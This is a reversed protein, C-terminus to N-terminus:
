GNQPVFIVCIRASSAARAPAERARHHLSPRRGGHFGGCAAASRRSDQSRPAAASEVTHWCIRPPAQARLVRGRGSGHRPTNCGPDRETGDGRRWPGASRVGSRRRACTTGAGPVCTVRRGSARGTGGGRGRWRRCRWCRWRWRSRCRRRLRGATVNSSFVVQSNTPQGAVPPLVRFVEYRLTGADYTIAHTEGRREASWLRQGEPRYVSNSFLGVWLAALSVFLALSLLALIGFGLRIM